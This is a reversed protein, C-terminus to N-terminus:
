LGPGPRGAEVECVPERRVLLREGGPDGHITVPLLDEAGTEHLRTMVEAGLTLRGAMGLEVSASVPRARQIALGVGWVLLAFAFWPAADRWPRARITSM